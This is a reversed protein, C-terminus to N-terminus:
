QAAPADTRRRHEGTGGAAGGAGGNGRHHGGAPADTGTGAANGGSGTDQDSGHGNSFAGANPDQGNSPPAAGNGGGNARAQRAALMDNSPRPIVRSGDQLKEQGDTVVQQGPQLGSKIIVDTGQTSDVVVQVVRVPYSM